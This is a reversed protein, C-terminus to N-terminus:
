VPYGSAAASARAPLSYRSFMWKSFWAVSWPITVILMSFLIFGIYMGVMEIPDAEFRAVREGGEIKSAFWKMYPVMLCALLVFAILGLGLRALTVLFGSNPLLLGLLSPVTTCAVMLLQWKLYEEISGGFRLRSGHNTVLQRAIVLLAQYGVYGSAVSMAVSVGLDLVEDDIVVGLIIQAWIVLSIPLLSKEITEPTGEYAVTTGDAFQLKQALYRLLKTVQEAAPLFVLLSLGAKLSKM